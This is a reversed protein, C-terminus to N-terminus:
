RASHRTLPFLVALWITAGGLSHFPLIVAVLAAIVLIFLFYKPTIIQWIHASIPALYRSKGPLLISLLKGGTKSLGSGLAAFKRPRYQRANPKYVYGAIIATLAAVAIWFIRSVLFDRNFIGRAAHVVIDGSMNPTSGISIARVPVDISPALVAAFGFVDSIASPNEALQFFATALVMGALWLVLFVGDGAGGLLLPRASFFTRIGAICAFAPGAIILPASLTQWIHLDNTPLRFVSIIVGALALVGLILWLILTDAIWNAVMRPIHSQPAIALLQTPVIRTPGARLFIYALPSLVLAAIIGIEMGIVSASLVPRANNISIVTYSASPQPVLFRALIPTALIVLWLSSSRLHRKLQLATFVGITHWLKSM